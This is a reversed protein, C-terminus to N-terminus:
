ILLVSFVSRSDGSAGATAQEIAADAAAECAHLSQWLETKKVDSVEAWNDRMARQAKRYAVLAALLAQQSNTHSTQAM